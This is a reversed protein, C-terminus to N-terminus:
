IHNLNAEQEFHQILERYEKEYRHSLVTKAKQRINANAKALKAPEGNKKRWEKLYDARAKKCSRCADGLLKKCRDYSAAKGHEIPM